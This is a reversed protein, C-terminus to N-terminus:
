GMYKIVKEQLEKMDKDSIDLKDSFYDYVEADSLAVRALEMITLMEEDTFVQSLARATKGKM